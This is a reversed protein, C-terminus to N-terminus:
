YKLVRKMEQVLENIIIPKSVHGNFGSQLYLEQDSKLANATFAIVAQHKKTIIENARIVKIMELGSMGPMQIDIDSRM